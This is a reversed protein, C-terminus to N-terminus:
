RASCFPESSAVTICRYEGTDLDSQTPDPNVARDGPASPRVACYFHYLCGDEEFVSPKHAHLEDISGPEGNCLIPASLKEWRYLDTSRALGEQAHRGDYGYYFMLWEGGYQVVCPDACFACDWGGGNVVVPRDSLRTWHTMDDSVALGIQEHWLWRDGDKANYFLYLRGEHEVLCGKYLGGREWGAGDQWRLVPQELRTWNRLTEDQTYALGICAPGAEYGADPYSHYVMWYKGDWKKLAPPGQLSNERLIWVGAIGGADWGSLEERRFLPADKEWHLLDDSHAISTQYGIGDFGVHMMHYRGGHRFVFPSDVAKEDYAGPAGSPGLVERGYKWQTRFTHNLVDM